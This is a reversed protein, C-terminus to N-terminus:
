LNIFIIGVFPADIIENNEGLGIQVCYEKAFAQIRCREKKWPYFTM